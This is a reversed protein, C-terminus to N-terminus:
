SRDQGRNSGFVYRGSPHVTIEGTENQGHFESPLTSITARAVLTGDSRRDFRTVMSDLENSVYLHIGPATM